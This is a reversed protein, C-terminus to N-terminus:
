FGRKLRRLKEFLYILHYKKSLPLDQTKLYTKQYGGFGKKFLTLGKWPHKKLQEETEVDAIGWFNYLKCGRSKAEKIAEWQMLYSAPIKAYKQNSAGQHYFGIGSWFIIIASALYEGKYKALLVLTQNNKNFAEFEGKLYKLSFPHFHHRKVTSQYIENFVEVDKINESKIIELDPNKLGQKILYRTTKRMNALLEDETPSLDLQWTLEPHIHIPAPRFGVAKFIDRNKETREFLPCFRIFDCKENEALKKLEEVLFELVNKEMIHPHSILLFTGRRAKIKVVQCIAVLKDRDFIGIRWVKEGLGKQFEGWAWSQLFTKTTITDLFGEWIEKNRIEKVGFQQSIESFM